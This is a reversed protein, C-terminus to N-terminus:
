TGYRTIKRYMCLYFNFWQLRQLDFQWDQCYWLPPNYKNFWQLWLLDFQWDRGLAKELYLQAKKVWREPTYFAGKRERIDEPVLLDRRNIFKNWFEERPPRHYINWFQTHVRQNDNFEVESKDFLGIKNKGILLEYHDKLLVIHLKDKLTKNDESLHLPNHYIYHRLHHQPQM